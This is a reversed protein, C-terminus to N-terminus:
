ITPAVRPSNDSAGPFVRGPRCDIPDAVLAANSYEQSGDCFGCFGRFDSGPEGTFPLFGIERIIRINRDSKPSPDGRSSATLGRPEGRISGDSTPCTRISSPVGSRDRLDKGDLYSVRGCFGCFGRYEPRSRDWAEEGRNGRIKRNKELLTDSFESMNRSTAQTEAPGQGKRGRGLGRRM